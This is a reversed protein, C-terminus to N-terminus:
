HEIIQHHLHTTSTGTSDNTPAASNNLQPPPDPFAGDGDGSGIDSTLTAIQAPDGGVGVGV